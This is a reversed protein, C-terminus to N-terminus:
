RGALALAEQHGWFSAGGQVAAAIAASFDLSEGCGRIRPHRATGRAYHAALIGLAAKLHGKAETPNVSGRGWGKASAYDAVTRGMGLIEWAAAGAFSASGGLADMAKGMSARAQAVMEPMTLGSSGGGREAAVDHARLPDIQALHFVRAFQEGADRQEDTIEGRAYLSAVIDVTRAIPRGIGGKADPIQGEVTEVASAGPQPSHQARYALPGDGPKAAALANRSRDLRKAAERSVRATVNEPKRGKQILYFLTEGKHRVAHVGDGLDTRPTAKASTGDSMTIFAPSSAPRRRASSAPM